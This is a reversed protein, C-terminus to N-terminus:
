IHILSLDLLVHYRQNGYHEQIPKGRGLLVDLRGPIVIIEDSSQLEEQDRRSKLWQRHYKVKPGGDATLPIALIPIGFTSLKFLNDEPKGLFRM